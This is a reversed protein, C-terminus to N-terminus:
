VTPGQQKDMRYIVTQMQEDWVGLEVMGWGEKDVVLRNEIALTTKLVTNLYIGERPLGLSHEPILVRGATPVGKWPGQLAWQGQSCGAANGKLEAQLQPHLLLSPVSTCHICQPANRCEQWQAAQAFSMSGEWVGEEEGSSPWTPHNLWLSLM